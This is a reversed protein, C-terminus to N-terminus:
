VGVLLRYVALCEIQRQGVVQLPFGDTGRKGVATQRQSDACAPALGVIHGAAVALPEGAGGRRKRRVADLGHVTELANGAVKGHRAAIGPRGGPLKHDM